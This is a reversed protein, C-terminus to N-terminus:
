KVLARKRTNAPQKKQLGTTVGEKPGEVLQDQVEVKIGSVIGSSNRKFYVTGDYSALAFTDRSRKVLDSSGQDSSINLVTDRLTVEASPTFSGAPFSYKGVYAKLTTDQAHALSVCSCFLLFLYISKM